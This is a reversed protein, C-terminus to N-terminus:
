KSLKLRFTVPYKHQYRGWTCFLMKSIMPIPMDKWITFNYNKVAQLRCSNSDTHKDYQFKKNRNLVGEFRNHTSFASIECENWSSFRVSYSVEYFQILCKFLETSTKTRQSDHNKLFIEVSAVLIKALNYCTQLIALNRRM